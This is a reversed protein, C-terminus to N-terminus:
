HRNKTAPKHTLQEYTERVRRIREQLDYIAFDLASQKDQGDDADLAAVTLFVM